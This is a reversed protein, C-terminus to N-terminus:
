SFLKPRPVFDNSVFLYTSICDLTHPIQVQFWVTSMHIVSLIVNRFLSQTVWHGVHISPHWFISFLWFMLGKFLRVLDWKGDAPM